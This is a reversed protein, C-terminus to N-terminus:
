SVDPVRKFIYRDENPPERSPKGFSEQAFADRSTLLFLALWAVFLLRVPSMRHRFRSDRRDMNVRSTLFLGQSMAARDGMSLASPGCSPSHHLGCRCARLVYRANSRPSLRRLAPSGFTGRGLLVHIFLRLRWHSSPGHDAQQAFTEGRPWFA